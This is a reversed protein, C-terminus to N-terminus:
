RLREEMAAVIEVPPAPLRQSPLCTAAHYAPRQQLARAWRVVGPADQWLWALGLHEVRDVFSAFAIDALSYAPGALWPSERLTDDLSRVIARLRAVSGALVDWDLDGRAWGRFAQARSPLPHSAVLAELEDDSLRALRTRIMLQFTAPRIAPHVEDDQLRMWTRMRARLLPDPPRLGSPCRDELYENIISSERLTGAEDRLVPVLGVPNVALFPPRLHDFRTLEVVRGEYPLGKEALCLRVKMSQLSDWDHYLILM